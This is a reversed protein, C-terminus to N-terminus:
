GHGADQSQKLAANRDVKGTATRRLAPVSVLATPLAVRPHTASVSRQVQRLTLEANPELQVVAVLGHEGAADSAVVVAVEHVEPLMRITLDVAELEVRQGRIKVQNDVRGLFVLAGDVNTAVLDGTRYWRTADSGPFAREIVSAETLDPRNWYRDMMTPTAVWLEGTGREAPHGADDVVMLETEPWAGGIPVAAGSEPLEVIDFRTCQNVEAPGYVNSVTAAPLASMLDALEEVPYSEGGYLIWRLSTLDREGLAGRTVLQRLVYPVSYWVTVREAAALESLSAPFRMVADPVVTVAAGVLPAAYLEFTSQDFHLAAINALRDDPRLGYDAAAIRAYALASRHKHVIGKPQGTSGSTYIIYADDDPQRKVPTVLPTTARQTWAIVNVDNSTLDSRVVAARVGTAATIAAFPAPRADTLLVEVGADVIVASANEVPAFPDIPVMVCGARLVAHVAVFSWVSKHMHVGVRDDARVGLEVLVGALNAVADIFEGYTLLDIGDSLARAHLDLDDRDLLDTLM